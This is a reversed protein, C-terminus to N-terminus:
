LPLEGNAKPDSKIGRADVPGGKAITLTNCLIDFRRNLDALETQLKIVLAMTQTDIPPTPSSPPFNGFMERRYGAIHNPGLDPAILEAIKEDSWGEKYAFTSPTVRTGHELLSEYIRIEEKRNLKRVM